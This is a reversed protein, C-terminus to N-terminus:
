LNCPHGSSTIQRVVVSLRNLGCPHDSRKIANSLLVTTSNVPGAHPQFSPHPLAAASGSGLELAQSLPSLVSTMSQFPRHLELLLM